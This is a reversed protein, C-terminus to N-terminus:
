DRNVTIEMSYFFWGCFASILVWNFPKDTLLNSVIGAIAFSVNVWGLIILVLNLQNREM